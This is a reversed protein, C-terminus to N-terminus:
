RKFVSEPMKIIKLTNKINETAHHTNPKISYAYGEAVFAVGSRFGNLDL